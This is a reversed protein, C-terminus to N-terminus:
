KNNKLHEELSVYFDPGTGHMSHYYKVTSIDIDYDRAVGIFFDENEM